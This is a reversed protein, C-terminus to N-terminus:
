EVAVDHSFGSTDGAASTATAAISLGPMKFPVLLTIKAKGATDTTVQVAGLLARGQGFGSPDAVDNAFFQITFKTSPTSVLNGQILTAAPITVASTLTPAVALHNGGSILRIGLNNNAFISNSLIRNGTGTDVLVGTDSNFAIINGASTALGGVTSGSADVIEVGHKTNPLASTGASNTGISNGELVNGQTGQGTFLVGAGANGSILNGAGKATGGINNLSATGGVVIGGAGNAVAAAAVANVGIQNAQITNGTTGAGKLEVGSASNGSILNGLLAPGGVTNASAGGSVLVGDAHNPLAASGGANTGIRNGYVFNNTTGAGDIHVGDGGNGAILNPDGSVQKGSVMGGVRNNAAGEDIEVGEKANALAAQGQANTGIRNGQVANGSASTGQILIGDLANGSVLNPRFAHTGGGIQNGSGTVFIGNAGNGLSAAGSTDTGVRNGKITNANGQIRIGDASNASIVNGTGPDTGGVLNGTAASLIDVGAAQNGLARRGAADTGILNGLVKNGYGELGVGDGQNASIVNALSPDGAGITNEAAGAAISVGGQRNPVASKGSTGIGIFNGQVTNGTSGAGTILVGALTNGSIVNSPGSPYGRRVPGRPGGIENDYADQIEVGNAGNGLPATGSRDTGILNLLVTNSFSAGIILVGDMTNGSILNGAQVISASSSGVGSGGIINDDAGGVIEIGNLGNPLAETGDANTGITNAFVLTGVTGSDAILIGNHGNGSILNGAGPMSGGILTNNAADRVVIGDFQNGIAADGSAATGIRNAQITTGAVDAGSVVVGSVNGSILHGGGLTLDGISNFASNGTIQVGVGNPLAAIGVRDLGIVNGEIRNSWGDTIAIGTRNAAILNDGIRNDSAKQTLDVGAQNPLATEGIANTGILNGEIRNNDCGEVVVGADNAAIVNGAGTATGGVGNGSAASTLYVGARNGLAKNGSADIGIFNGQIANGTATPDDIAVGTTNGSILNRAALTTGGILNGSGGPGIQIGAGNTGGGDLVLGNPVAKTGSADTGINNGLVENNPADLEVGVDNGSIVNGAGPTTGGITTASAGSQVQVGTDQFGLKHAGALDTGIRNGIIQNGSTGPDSVLIGWSTNDSIVNGAGIPGGIINNSSGGDILIGTEQPLFGPSGDPTINIDCGSITNGGQGWLQIGVSNLPNDDTEVFDFVALGRVTSNGGTIVLGYATGFGLVHLDYGDLTILPTGQYGPETTGDILVPDTVDPLPSQLLITGDGPINFTITDAGPHANATEIAWRLSGVGDDNRNIVTFNSLLCRDELAEIFL